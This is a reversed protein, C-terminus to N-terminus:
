PALTLRFFVDEIPSSINGTVSARYVWASKRHALPVAILTEWVRAQAQAYLRERDAADTTARATQLLDALAADPALPSGQPDSNFAADAGCFLPCLFSDPDGNVGVWGLVFLDARGARVDTLWVPWDPSAVTTSIGAALLDAQLAAGLGAPDPLYTRAVPPVYLSIQEPPEAGSALCAAWLRAAEAPNHPLGTQPLQAGWVAPPILSGAPDADGPFFAAAYRPRDMALAVALRCDRNHWPSRALNFGLYLVNLAPDFELRLNPDNAIAAYDSPSPRALGDTEGVQLALLRQTDDPIIKFVLEDPGAPAGWYGPNRALRLIGESKWAQLLFPGTGASEGGPAGFKESQFASPNVIAFSPMALTAPLAADARRLTLALTLEDLVKVEALQSLPEGNEDSQGAHGGFMLRFFVYDGPPTQDLWREFNQAALDANLVAGDSFRVGSRLRFTWTLGDESAEWSEALAPIVRTGGPEYATLGEYLHRTILLAAEDAALAPDLTGPATPLGLTFIRPAPTPIPLPTPTPAATPGPTSALTPLPSAPLALTPDPNPASCASLFRICLVWYAIRPLSRNLM